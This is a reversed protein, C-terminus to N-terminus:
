ISQKQYRDYLERIKQFDRWVPKKKSTDRLLAAPHYTPVIQIGGKEFVDGRVVSVKAERHVLYRTALAGLCIILAPQMLEIQRTLYVFCLDAEERKPTRNQPPRCKVVNTIYVEERRFGSAALIKNLLKGAAGVFPRQLREEEAGPAEGVLMLTAQPDGEGFVVHSDSSRLHCRQCQLCYDGLQELNKLRDLQILWEM